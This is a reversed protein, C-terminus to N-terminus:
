KIKSQIMWVSINLLHYWEPARDISSVEL